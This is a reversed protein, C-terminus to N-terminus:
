TTVSPAFNADEDVQGFLKSIFEGIWDRFIICLAVVIIILVIAVIIGESGGDEERLSRMAAMAREKAAQKATQAKAWMKFLAKDM